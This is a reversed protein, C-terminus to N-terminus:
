VRKVGAYAYHNGSRIRIARGLHTLSIEEAIMSQLITIVHSPHLLGKPPTGELAKAELPWSIHEGQKQALLSLDEGELEISVGDGISSCQEMGDLLGRRSLTVSFVSELQEMQRYPVPRPSQLRPAYLSAVNGVIIHYRSATEGIKIIPVDTRLEHVKAVLRVFDVLLTPLYWTINEIDRQISIDRLSVVFRDTSSARLGRETKELQIYGWNEDKKTVSTTTIALAEDVLLSIFSKPMKPTPLATQPPMSHVVASAGGKLSLKGEGSDSITMPGKWRRMIKFVKDSQVLTSGPEVNTAEILIVGGYHHSTVGIGLYSKKERQIVELLISGKDYARM